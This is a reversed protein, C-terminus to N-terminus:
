EGVPETGGRFPASALATGLSLSDTDVAEFVIAIALDIEDVAGQASGARYRGVGPVFRGRKIAVHAGERRLEIAMSKTYTYTYHRDAYGIHLARSARRIGFANYKLTGAVGDVEMAARTLSPRGGTGVGTVSTQPLREAVLETRPMLQSQQQRVPKVYFVMVDGFSGVTGRKGRQTGNEFPELEFTFDGM